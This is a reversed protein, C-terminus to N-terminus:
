SATTQAPASATGLNSSSRHLASVMQTACSTQSPARVPQRLPKGSVVVAQSSRDTRQLAAAQSRAQEFARLTEEDPMCGIRQAGITVNDHLGLTEHSWKWFGRSGKPTPGEWQGRQVAALARGLKWRAAMRTENIPRMDEVGYVGGDHM